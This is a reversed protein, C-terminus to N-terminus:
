VQEHNKNRVELMADAFGYAEEAAARFGAENRSFTGNTESECSITGCLAQGAFWDRLTMGSNEADLPVPFAPQNNM